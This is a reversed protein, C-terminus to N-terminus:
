HAAPWALLPVWPMYRATLFGANTMSTSVLGIQQMVVGVCLLSGLLLLGGCEARGPLRGAARLRQWERWALPSVVLAGLAFRLRTFTLPGDGAMGLSQGVFALGWIMAALLLVNARLRSMKPGTM